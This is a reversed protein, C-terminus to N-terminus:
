SWRIVAGLLNKVRGRNVDDYFKPAERADLRHTITRGWDLAGEAMLKIVTRRSPVYGDDCPFFARIRRNHAELFRFSLPGAGYNGQFVFKGERRCLAIGLDVCKPNGSAEFVVDAGDPVIQKMREDLDERSSNITHDAGLQRAVALRQDDIDVAVTVAGRLKATAVNGLGILGAGIVVVRDGMAVGAMNVGNLGVSPMVFLSAAEEDVGEPLKAPGHLVNTSDTVVHSAHAGSTASVPRGQWTIGASCGRYYIRDGVAFDKVASGVQEVIGVGQYGTIIPFPGWSVQSRVLLLETGISVGTRLARVWLDRPQLPSYEVEDLVFEQQETCVLAQAKM